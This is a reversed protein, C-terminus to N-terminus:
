HSVIGIINKKNVPGFYRGDFSRKIHTSMLLYQNARLRGCFPQNPLLKGPAYERYIPAIKQTSTWLWGNKKCVYDGPIGKVIKMMLGSRPLWQEKLLFAKTKNPPYFVVWNGRTLHHVPRVLYFGKPMSNSGQYTVFYGRQRIAFVIFFLIFLVIFIYFLFSLKARYYKFFM